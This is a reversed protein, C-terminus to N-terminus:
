SAHSFDRFSRVIHERPLDISHPRDRGRSFDPEGLERSIIKASINLRHPHNKLNTSSRSSHDVKASFRVSYAKSPSRDSLSPWWGPFVRTKRTKAFYNQALTLDIPASTDYESAMKELIGRWLQKLFFQVYLEARERAMPIGRKGRFVELHGCCFKFHLFIAINLWHGKSWNIKLIRYRKLHREYRRLFKM